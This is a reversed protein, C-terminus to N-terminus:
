GIGLKLKRKVETLNKKLLQKFEIKSKCAHYINTLNNWYHSSRYVSSKRYTNVKSHNEIIQRRSEVHSRTPILRRDLLKECKSNTFGYTLTTMIETDELKILGLELMKNETNTRNKMKCIIRVAKNQLSNLYKLSKKSCVSYYMCYTEFIPKIMSKYILIALNQTVFPRLRGLQGIRYNCVRRVKLCQSEFNLKEDIDLGLYTYKEVRNIDKDGFKISKIMTNQKNGKHDIISFKSKSTNVILKNKKFWLNLYKLDEEMNDKMENLCNGKALIATDDAYM